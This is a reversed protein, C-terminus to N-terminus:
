TVYGLDRLRQKILAEEEDSLSGASQTEDGDEQEMYSIPNEDIFSPNIFDVLVRGDIDAPVPYGMLYLITPTLDHIKAGERWEFEKFHGPWHAIFIGEMRHHGTTGFVPEFVRPSSFDSLGMVKYEMDRTVFIMDPAKEIMPGQYIEDRLFTREVVQVGTEPDTLTSLKEALETLLSRYATGPEVIGVPERGKLNVFMQGFNGMSYVQTRKWDVDDLSLFIKRQWEERRARGLKKAQKGLGVKLIFRGLHDYNFGMHFLLSRLRTVPSKKLKLYGHHMLWVNTNIFKKVRGFGHDSMLIVGTDQELLKQIEGLGADVAKYFDLIVNGLQTREERNHLPHTEDLLHWFEHSVRDTGLFHLMLFDWEKNQILYLAAKINNELIAFQEKIFLDPNSSRYKEDQRLLYKGLATELEPLLGLPYTFQKTKPPTLLGTISFGNLNEPPYTLPVGVTGVKLGHDSLRRWLSKGRIDTRQHLVQKYTGPKRYFFEFVGHKGPSTGTMFSSWAPGTLPPFTSILPGSIGKEMLHKIVPLKGAETWPRILDFTAGDLGIVLLKGM